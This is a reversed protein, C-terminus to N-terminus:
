RQLSSSINSFVRIITMIESVLMLFLTAVNINCTWEFKLLILFVKLNWFCGVDYNDSIDNMQYPMNKIWHSMRILNDPMTWVQTSTQLISKSILPSTSRGQSWSIHQATQRGRPRLKLHLLSLRLPLLYQNTHQRQVSSISNLSLKDRDIM